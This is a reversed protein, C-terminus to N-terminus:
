PAATERAVIHVRVKLKDKVKLAGVLTTFPKMGLKTQYVEFIGSATLRDDGMEVKVPVRLSTRIGLVQVDADLKLVPLAGGAVTARVQVAPFQKADLVKAGLMNTRTGEIDSDSLPIDFDKGAAKRLAPDDVVLTAVPLRLDLRSDEIKPAVTVTGQLDRSSIVHNHGLHALRGERYVFIEVLSAQGDVKFVRERPPAPEPEAPAEQAAPEEPIAQAPTEAVEASEPAATKQFASCGTLTWMLILAAAASKRFMHM